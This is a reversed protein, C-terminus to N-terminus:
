KSKSLFSFVIKQWIESHVNKIKTYYKIINLNGHNSTFYYERDRIYIIQLLRENFLIALVKPLQLKLPLFINFFNLTASKLNHAFDYTNIELFFKKKFM